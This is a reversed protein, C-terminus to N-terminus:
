WPFAWLLAGFACGIALAGLVDAFRLPTDHM